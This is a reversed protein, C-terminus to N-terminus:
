LPCVFYFRRFLCVFFFRRCHALYIVHKGKFFDVRNMKANLMNHLLYEALVIRMFMLSENSAGQSFIEKVELTCCSIFSKGHQQVKGSIVVCLLSKLM